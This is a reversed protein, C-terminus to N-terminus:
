AGVGKPNRYPIWLETVGLLPFIAVLATGLPSSTLGILLSIALVIRIFRPVKWRALYHAVIGTGQAAYALTFILSLNWALAELVPSPKLYLIGLLLAWSVLFPWVLAEPLHLEMLSPTARRGSSGEGAMRNGIWWSGGVLLFLLAAFSSSFLKMTTAVMEAPDLSALMAAGDYGQSALSPASTSTGALGALLDQVSETMSARIDNDSVLLAVAPAMLLALALSVILAKVVAATKSWIAANLILLALILLFPYAVGALSALFLSSGGSTVLRWAQVLAVIGGSLLAASNGGQKGLRGFALQLPVLFAFSLVISLYFSASMLGLALASFIFSDSRGIRVGDGM